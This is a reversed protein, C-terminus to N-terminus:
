NRMVCQALGIVRLGIKMLLVSIAIIQTRLTSTCRSVVLGSGAVDHRHFERGALTKQVALEFSGLRGPMM